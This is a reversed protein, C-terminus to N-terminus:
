SRCYWRALRGPPVGFFYLGVLALNRASRRLWGDREWRRASTTLAVPLERISGVRALRRVFDVDEMLPWERYGGLREFLDRRVFIGQDGYPLRLFRVRWAVLYEIIRAQWASSNLRFRFWGGVLIPDETARQIAEKWYHPLESDAHLFLLWSGRAIRAGTNMQIGRGTRSRILMADPRTELLQDIARDHGGDVVVIETETDVAQSRLLKELAVTDNLVPVILSILVSGRCIYRVDLGEDLGPRCLRRAHFAPGVM